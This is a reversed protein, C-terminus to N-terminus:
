ETDENENSILKFSDVYKTLAEEIVPLILVNKNDQYINQIFQSQYPLPKVGAIELVPMHMKFSHEKEVGELVPTVNGENDTKTTRYNQVLYEINEIAPELCTAIIRKQAKEIYAKVDPLKLSRRVTQRCVGADKAIRYNSVGQIHKNAFEIDRLKNSSDKTVSCNDIPVDTENQLM